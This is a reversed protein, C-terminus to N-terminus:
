KCKVSLFKATVHVQGRGRKWFTEFLDHRVTTSFVSILDLAFLTLWKSAM